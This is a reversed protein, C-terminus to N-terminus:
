EKREELFQDFWGLEQLVATTWHRKGFHWHWWIRFQFYWRPWSMMKRHVEEMAREVEPSNM